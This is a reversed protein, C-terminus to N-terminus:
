DWLVIEASCRIYANEVRVADNTLARVLSNCDDNCFIDKKQRSVVVTLVDEYRERVKTQLLRCQSMHMQLIEQKCTKTRVKVQLPVPFM